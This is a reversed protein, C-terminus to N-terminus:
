IKSILDLLMDVDKATNFNKEIFDKGNKGIFDGFQKDLFIKRIAEAYDDSTRCLIYDKNNEAKIGEIAIENALVPMGSSMGEIVKVKVGAGLLLPCVMCLAESFLTDVNEVYGLVKTKGKNIEMLEKVPNGGVIMFGIPLDDLKPMVNSYFWLASKWNEERNMAGFFIIYNGTANRSIYSYNDYYPTLVITQKTVGDTKLLNLDKYNNVAVVDLKSVASLEKKKLQLYLLKRIKKRIVGSADEFKRKFGLYAVDVEIGIFPIKPFYKKLKDILLIIQTWELIVVDPKNGLSLYEKVLSLIAYEEYNRTLTGNRNLPNFVSECDLLRWFLWKIGKDPYFSVLNNIKYRDLDLKGEERRKAMSILTINIEDNAAIKKVYYNHTKGGAHPVNDYPVSKSIWLVNKM